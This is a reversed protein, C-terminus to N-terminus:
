SWKLAFLSADKENQFYWIRSEAHRIDRFKNQCHELCWSLKTSYDDDTELSVPYYTSLLGMLKEDQSIHEGTRLINHPFIKPVPQGMIQQRVKLAM